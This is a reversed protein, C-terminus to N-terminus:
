HSWTYIVKNTTENTAVFTYSGSITMNNLTAEAKKCGAVVEADSNATFSSTSAVGLAQEFVDFIETIVDMSGEAKTMSIRYTYPGAPTDDDDDGCSSLTAVMLTCCCVAALMFLFKKM